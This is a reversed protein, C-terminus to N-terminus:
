AAQLGLALMAAKLQVGQPDAQAAQRLEALRQAADTRGRLQQAAQMLVDFRAHGRSHTDSYGKVVRRCGLLQVALAYDTAACSQVLALWRGIHATERGHRLSRQRWRRAAAVARLMLHHRLTHPRLRRGQDVRPALWRWLRPSNEIWTGLREPLAGALEELRPHFYDEVGVVEGAGAGVERRVRAFREARTKLDAVRALDDYSMAVALWQAAEITLTHGAGAGGAAHDWQLVQALRDLYQAGYAVDQYEVVRSLGEGLMAQAPAPFEARIRELLPQLAASAAQMPLARPATSMPDQAPEALLPARAAKVGAAFARLSAAVGVGAREITAAFASESFPLVGSGALAGFLPASIVSREAEALAQMDAAILHKASAHLVQMVVSADAIGNASAIKESVSYTRHTSTILTTREPVAWGRLVARGAEMLEAAILVDVEGATPMQALVPTTHGEGAWSTPDLLEVYYVTAGTRQAVGAVSTAQAIYGEHEALAVIWDVLVGGGQGGLAQIAITIPKIHRKV